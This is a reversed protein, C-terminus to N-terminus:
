RINSSLSPPRSEKVQCNLRIKGKVLYDQAGKRVAELSTMEDDLGTMIIIPALNGNKNIEAINALGQGDPLNLDLLIVDYKEKELFSKAEGLTPANILEHAPSNGEGIITERLLVYDGPNDEVILIKLIETM